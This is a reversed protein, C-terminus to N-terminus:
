RGQPMFEVQVVLPHEPSIRCQGRWGFVWGQKRYIGYSTALRAEEIFPEGGLPGNYIVEIFHGTPLALRITNEHALTPKCVTHFRAEYKHIQDNTTTASDTVICSASNNNSPLAINRTITVPADFREYGHHRGAIEIAGSSNQGCFTVEAQAEDGIVWLDKPTTSQEEDDIILVNHGFTSKGAFSAEYDGSYSYTGSDVIVEDGQYSMEFSSADNHGHVGVAGPIGRPGFDAMVWFDENQIIYFGAHTFSDITPLSNEQKDGACLQSLVSPAEPGFLWLTESPLSDDQLGAMALDTQKSLLGGLAVLYRHDRIKRQTAESAILVRGNDADGFLAINGDPKTIASTFGIMHVCSDIWNRPFIDLELHRAYLAPYLLCETVLRHYSTSMEYDAGDPLVQEQMSNTLIELGQELWLKANPFSPYALALFVLGTGDSVYHNNRIGGWDEIHTSIFDGHTALASAYKVRFENTILPSNSFFMLAWIWSIARFGVDMGCIWNVGTLPANTEIWDEVEQIFEQTYKEDGSLLYAQGLAVFHQHRGLEWPVKIDGHVSTDVSVVRESLSPSWIHGTIFDRQWNIPWGLSTEGSGLLDFIHNCVADARALTLERDKPTELAALALLEKPTYWPHYDLAASTDIHDWRPQSLRRALKIKKILPM